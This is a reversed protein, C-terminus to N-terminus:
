ISFTPQTVNDTWLLKKTNNARKKRRQINWTTETVPAKFSRR